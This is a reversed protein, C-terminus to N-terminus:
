AFHREILDACLHIEPAWQERIYPVVDPDDFSLPGDPFEFARYRAGLIAAAQYRQAGVSGGELADRLIIKLWSVRSRPNLDTRSTADLGTGISFMRISDPRARLERVAGALAVMSPDNAFIGGDAHGRYPAFYTHAAMSARAVEWAAWQADAADGSFFVKLSGSALNHAPIFCPIRCGAFGNTFMKALARNLAVDDYRPAFPKFRRWGHGSFIEAMRASFFAGLAAPNLGMAVCLAAASGASNGAVVDIKALTQPRVRALVAAHVAGYAGGGTFVLVNM